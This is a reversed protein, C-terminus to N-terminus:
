LVGLQRLADLAAQRAEADSSGAARRLHRLGEDTQGSNVLTVGVSLHAPAFDPRSRLAQRYRELAQATQGESRLLDGLLVQVEARDPNSTAALLLQQRAEELRSARVLAAAYNYRAVDDEPQLRIATRLHDEGDEFRGANALLNGLNAYAAAFSPDLRLAARFASEALGSQERRLWVAGLNNQTEPLDPNLALAREFASVADSDREQAMRILGLEHWFAYDAPSAALGKLVAEAAQPFQNLARLAAALKRLNPANPERQVAERYYHLAEQPRGGASFADALEIYFQAQSPRHRAIAEELQVIGEARNSGDQVQAVALYLEAEPTRPWPNPYYPAVPGRYAATEAASREQRPATLRQSPKFRQIRHDTMVAHVVDDTRRRPMHCEACSAAAPHAGFAVLSALRSEHCGLCAVDFSDPATQGHPDHCTTCLLAGNSERFCASQRLRYAASVIEFKDDHDSGPQHDFYFRFDALPQGPVYSFPARGYRRVSNPLPASTTELHCQMCVELQRDTSLRAPNVIARRVQELTADPAGALELHRRGPGHCRQCDIGQPLLEPFVTERGAVDVASATPYGNHCFMCEYTIERRFGWHDPQDFGPNMAWHGGGEAYWALPLEVLTNRPTRHLFTRAHNGSGIVYDVAKEVAQAEGAATLQERRQYSKGGRLLMSFRGASASHDFAGELPFSGALGAPEPLRVFSRAMGTQSYSDWISQHCGACAQPAVYSTSEDREALRQSVALCAFGLVAAAALTRPLWLRRLM